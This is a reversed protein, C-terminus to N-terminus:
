RRRRRGRRPFDPSASSCRRNARPPSSPSVITQALSDDVSRGTAGGAQKKQLTRMTLTEYATVIVKAASAPDDPQCNEDLWDVLARDSSPLTQAKYIPHTVRAKTEYYRFVQLESSFFQNVEDIWVDVVHPPAVVLTPKWPGTAGNSHDRRAARARELVVTLLIITKGTGCDDAIMGGRIPLTEQLFAWAAGTVQWPNLQLVPKLSPAAAAGGKATSEAGRERPPSPQDQRQERQQQQQEQRRLQPFPTPHAPDWGFMRCSEDYTPTAASVTSLSSQTQWYQDREVQTLGDVM